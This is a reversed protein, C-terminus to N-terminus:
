IIHLKTKTPPPQTLVTIPFSATFCTSHCEYPQSSVVQVVSSKPSTSEETFHAYCKCKYKYMLQLHVFNHIRFIQM